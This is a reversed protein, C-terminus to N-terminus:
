DIIIDLSVFNYAFKTLNFTLKQKYIKSSKADRFNQYEVVVVVVSVVGVVVTRDFLTM